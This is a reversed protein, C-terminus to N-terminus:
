DLQKILIADKAVINRWGKLSWRNDFVWEHRTKRDWTIQDEKVETVRLWINTNRQRIEDGQKPNIRPDRTM